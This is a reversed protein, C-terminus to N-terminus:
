SYKTIQPILAHYCQQSVFSIEGLCFGEEPEVEHKPEKIAKLIFKESLIFVPM